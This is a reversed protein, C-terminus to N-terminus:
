QLWLLFYILLIVFISLGVVKYGMIINSRLVSGAFPVFNPSEQSENLEVFEMEGQQDNFVIYFKKM